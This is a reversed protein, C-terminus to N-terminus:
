LKPEEFAQNLMGVLNPSFITSGVDGRSHGIETSLPAHQGSLALVPLTSCLRSLRQQFPRKGIKKVQACTLMIINSARTANFLINFWSQFFTIVQDRNFSNVAGIAECENLTTDVLNITNQM